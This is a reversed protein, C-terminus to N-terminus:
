VKLVTVLRVVLSAYACENGTTVYSALTTTASAPMTIPSAYTTDCHTLKGVRSTSCCYYRWWAAGALVCCVVVVM